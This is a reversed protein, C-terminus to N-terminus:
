SRVQDIGLGFGHKLDDDSRLLEIQNDADEHACHCKEQILFHDHILLFIQFRKIDRNNKKSDTKAHQEYIRYKQM